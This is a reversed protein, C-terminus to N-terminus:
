TCVSLRSSQFSSKQASTRDDYRCCFVTIEKRIETQMNDQCDAFDSRIQSGFESIVRLYDVVRLLKKGAFGHQEECIRAIGSPKRKVVFDEFQIIPLTINCFEPDAKTSGTQATNVISSM